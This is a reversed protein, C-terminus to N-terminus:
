ATAKTKKKSHIPLGLFQDLEGNRTASMLQILIEGMEKLDRSRISPKGKELEVIRVGNRLRLYIEGNSREEWWPRIPIKREILQKEGDVVKWQRRVKFQQRDEILAIQQHLNDILKSRARDLPTKAEDSTAVFNLSKLVSM